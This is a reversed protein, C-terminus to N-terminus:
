IMFLRNVREVLNHDRVMRDRWDPHDNIINSLMAMCNDIAKM